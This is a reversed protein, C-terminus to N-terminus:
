LYYRVPQHHSLTTPTPTIVITTTVTTTTTTARGSAMEDSNGFSSV